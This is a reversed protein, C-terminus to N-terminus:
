LNPLKEPLATDSSSDIGKHKNVMNNKKDKAQM